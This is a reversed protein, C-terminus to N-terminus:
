GAAVPSIGLVDFVYIDASAPAGSSGGGTPVIVMIESGVTQGTLANLVVDDGASIPVAQPESGWTTRSVENPKDWAVSTYALLATDGNELAEGDGRKLVQVVPETPAVADPVIIGPQGSPAHVVTPLGPSDNFQDAGDAASLYVKTIDLVAVADAGDSIPLQAISGLSDAPIGIVIRSGESACALADAFGPVANSWNDLSVPAAGGDYGQDAITQGTAGDVITIGMDFMQQGDVLKTGDGTAFDAFEVSGAHFPTPVDVEPSSGVDGSVSILNELAGPETTRECSAQPSSSCGVLAIAVLGLAAVAAPLRRM